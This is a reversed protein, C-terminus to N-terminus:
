GNTGVALRQWLCVDEGVADQHQWRWVEGVCVTM